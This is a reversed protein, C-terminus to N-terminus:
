PQSVSANLLCLLGREPDPPCLNLNKSNFFWLRGLLTDWHNDGLFIEADLIVSKSNQVAGTQGVIALATISALGKRQASSDRAPNMIYILLLLRPPERYIYDVCTASMKPWSM